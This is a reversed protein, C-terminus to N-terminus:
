ASYLFLKFVWHQGNLMARQSRKAAMKTINCFESAKQKSGSYFEYVISAESRHFGLCCCLHAFCLPWYQANLLCQVVEERLM